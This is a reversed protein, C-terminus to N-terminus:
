CERFNREPRGCRVDVIYCFQPWIVREWINASVTIQGMLPQFHISTEFWNRLCSSYDQCCLTKEKINAVKVVAFPIM